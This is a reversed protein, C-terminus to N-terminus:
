AAKMALGRCKVSCYKQNATRRKFPQWCTPCQVAETLYSACKRSCRRANPTPPLFLEGCEQCPIKADDGRTMSSGHNGLAIVTRPTIRDLELVSLIATVQSDDDWVAARTGADLVAKTLNDVDVRQRSSRYFICGLVVNGSFKDITALHEAIRKEGAVTVRPTYPKGKKTFRARAKSPPEGDVIVVRYDPIRCFPRILGLARFRDEQGIVLM